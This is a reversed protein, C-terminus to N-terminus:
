QNGFKIIHIHAIHYVKRSERGDNLRNTRNVVIQKMMYLLHTHVNYSGYMTHVTWQGFHRNIDAIHTGCM